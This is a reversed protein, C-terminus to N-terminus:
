SYFLLFLDTQKKQMDPERTRWCYDTFKESMSFDVNTRTFFRYLRFILWRSKWIGDDRGLDSNTPTIFPMGDGFVQELM